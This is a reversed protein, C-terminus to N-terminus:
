VYGPRMGKPADSAQPNGGQSLAFRGKSSLKQNRYGFWFSGPSPRSFAEGAGMTEKRGRENIAIPYFPSSNSIPAICACLSRELVAYEEASAESLRKKIDSVTQM